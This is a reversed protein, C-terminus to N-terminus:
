HHNRSRLDIIDLREYESRIDKRILDIITSTVAISLIISGIVLGSILILKNIEYWKYLTKVYQDNSSNYQSRGREKKTSSRFDIIMMAKNFHNTTIRKHNNITSKTSKNVSVHKINKVNIVFVTTKTQPSTKKPNNSKTQNSTSKIPIRTISHNSTKIMHSVNAVNKVWPRNEKANIQVKKILSFDDINCM